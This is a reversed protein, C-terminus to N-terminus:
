SLLFNHLTYNATELNEKNFYFLLDCFLLCKMHQFLITFYSFYFFFLFKKLFSNFKITIINILITCYNFKSFYM